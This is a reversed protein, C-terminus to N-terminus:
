GGAAFADGLADGLRDLVDRSLAVDGTFSLFGHVAGAVPIHEVEVGAERLLAVYAVGQDRLPDFEATVVVAPAVGRLDESRAPSVRPDAGEDPTNLYAGWFWELWSRTLVPGLAHETMSPSDDFRDTAPYALVQLAIAPGGRRRAEQALVAALNGGASEGLLALRTPDGGFDPAHEAVWLLATYADEVGAPFRHEPALRYDVSVVIGHSRNAAGRAIHDQSDLGGTVWGGGHLFVTVPLPGDADADMPTYIRIPIDHDGAPVRADIASAVPQQPGSFQAFDDVLARNQAVTLSEPAPAGAFGSLVAALQEDLAVDTV